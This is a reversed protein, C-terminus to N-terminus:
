WFFILTLIILVVKGIHGCISKTASLVNKLSFLKRRNATTATQYNQVPKYILLSSKYLETKETYILKLVGKLWNSDDNM